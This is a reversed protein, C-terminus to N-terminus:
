SHRAFVFSFASFNPFFIWCGTCVAELSGMAKTDRETEVNGNKV